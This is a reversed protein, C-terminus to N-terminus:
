QPSGFTNKYREHIIQVTDNPLKVILELLLDEFEHIFYAAQQNFFFEKFVATPSVYDRVSQPLRLFEIENVLFLQNESNRIKYDEHYLFFKGPIQKTVLIEYLSLVFILGSPGGSCIVILPKHQM